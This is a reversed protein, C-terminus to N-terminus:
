NKEAYNSTRGLSIDQVLVGCLNNTKQALRPQDRQRIEDLIVLYYNSRCTRNDTKIHNSIAESIMSFFSVFDVVDIVVTTWWTDNM